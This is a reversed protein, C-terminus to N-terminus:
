GVSQEKGYWGLCHGLTANEDRHNVDKSERPGEATLEPEKAVDGAQRMCFVSIWPWCTCAQAWLGGCRVM